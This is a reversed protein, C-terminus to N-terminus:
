KKIWNFLLKAFEKPNTKALNIIEEKQKVFKSKNEKDQTLQESLKKKKENSEKQSKITKRNKYVGMLYRLLLLLVILGLGGLFYPNYKSIFQKPGEFKNSLKEWNILSKTIPLYSILLRDGRSPNIGSINLLVRKIEKKSIKRKNFKQNDIVISVSLQLVETPSTKNTVKEKNFYILDESGSHSFNFNHKWNNKEQPEIATVSTQQDLAPNNSIPNFSKLSTIKPFGPLASPDPPKIKNRSILGPLSIEKNIFV